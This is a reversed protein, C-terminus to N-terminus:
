IEIPGFGKKKPDNDHKIGKRKKQYDKFYKKKVPDDGAVKKRKNSMEKSLGWMDGVTMGQKATRRAFDERSFCDGKTDFSANAAFFVRDWQVGAHDIYTHEDKMSQVVEIEEGTEPHQFIYLPM